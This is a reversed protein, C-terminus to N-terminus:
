DLPDGAAAARVAGGRRRLGLAARLVRWVTQVVTWLYLRVSRDAIWELDHALKEDWGPARDIRVQALGTLGPRVTLRQWYQPIEACLEEFFRPRLPRPGVVSMDGVLVNWLQPLEDLHTARLVRGVRTTEADIRRDLEAGYFGGIRADADPVLTRVKRMVFVRGRRGVREGAHFVPRGSTVLVVCVVAALLPAVVLLGVLALVVDLVRLAVDTRRRVGEYEAAESIAIAEEGTPAQGPALPAVVVTRPAAAAAARARARRVTELVGVVYASAVLAVAGLAAVLATRGAHWSGHARFALTTSAVVSAAVIACWLALVAALRRRSRPADAASPDSRVRVRRAVLLSRDLAPIALVAFPFFVGVVAATKLLGQVAVTGLLYGLALSGVHGLLITAPFFNRVLFAVSAGAIIASMIAPGRYGLGLSLAVFVSSALACIAAALGDLGDVFDVLRMLVVVWAVTLPSGVWGPLDTVVGVFPFTFREITMGYLVPVLAACVQGAFLVPPSLRGTDELLGVVAAAVLGILIGRYVGDLPQFGLAAVVVALVIALGGVPPARLARLAAGSRTEAEVRELRPRLVLVIAAAVLFALLSALWTSLDDPM